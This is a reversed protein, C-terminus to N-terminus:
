VGVITLIKLKNFVEFEIIWLKLLQGQIFDVVCIRYILFFGTIRDRNMWIVFSM